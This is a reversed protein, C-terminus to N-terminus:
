MFWRKEYILIVIVMVLNVIWVADSPIKDALKPPILLSVALTVLAALFMWGYWLIAPGMDEQRSLFFRGTEPYYRFAACDMYFAIVYPVGFLMAFMKFVRHKM